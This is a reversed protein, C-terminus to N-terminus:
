YTVTAVVTDTYAGAAATASPVRGYVTFNQNAGTGTGAQTSTGIVTGWANTFAADRFLGYAVFNTTGNKMQRTTTYNLGNGLGITYPTGTTCKVTLVGGTSAVNTATSAVSGFDVDTPAVTHIDCTATVTIKVTMNATDTAASAAGFAGLCAASILSARFIKKM